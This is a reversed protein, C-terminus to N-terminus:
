VFVSICTGVSIRTKKNNNNEARVQISAVTYFEAAAGSVTGANDDGPEGGDKQDRDRGPGGRGPLALTQVCPPLQPAHSQGFPRFCM